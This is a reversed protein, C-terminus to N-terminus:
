TSIPGAGTWFTFLAQWNKDTRYAYAYVDVQDNTWEIWAKGKSFYCKINGVTQKDSNRYSSSGSAAKGCAKSPDGSPPTSYWAEADVASSFLSYGVGEDPTVQCFINARSASALQPGRRCYPRITLPIMAGLDREHQTARFPLTVTSTSRGDTTKQQAKSGGSSGGIVGAAALAGILTGIATILAAAGTAWGSWNSGLGSKEPEDAM